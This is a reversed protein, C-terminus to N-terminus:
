KQNKNMKSEQYEKEDEPHKRKLHRILNSTVGEPITLAERTSPCLRCKFMQKGNGLRQVYEFYKEYLIKSKWVKSSTKKDEFDIDFPGEIEFQM